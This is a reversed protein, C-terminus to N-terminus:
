QECYLLICLSKIRLIKSDLVCVIKGAIQIRARWMCWVWPLYIDPLPAWCAQRIYLCFLSSCFLSYPVDLREQHHIVMKWHRSIKPVRDSACTMDPGPGQLHLDPVLQSSAFYHQVFFCFFLSINTVVVLYMWDNEKHCTKQGMVSFLKRVWSWSRSFCNGQVTMHAFGEPKICSVEAFITEHSLMFCSLVFGSLETLWLLVLCCGDLRHSLQSNLWIYVTYPTLFGANLLHMIRSLSWIYRLYDIDRYGGKVHYDGICRTCSSNGIKQATKLKEVDLGLASLRRQEQPDDLTHDDSLQTVTLVGDQGTKVLLARTDGSCCFM